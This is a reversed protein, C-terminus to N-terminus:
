QGKGRIRCEGLIRMREQGVNRTGRGNCCHRNARLRLNAHEKGAASAQGDIRVAGTRQKFHGDSARQRFVKPEDGLACLLCHQSAARVALWCGFRRSCSGSWKSYQWSEALITQAKEESSGIFRRGSSGIKSYCAFSQM